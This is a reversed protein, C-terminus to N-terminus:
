AKRGGESQIEDELYGQVRWLRQYPGDELILSQHSGSEVVRGAELVLILDAHMVSSLRHAILITTGQGRRETLAALIASETVTDVASLSDDLILITPECLLARAIAVRQRQGGSLTVGREGVETEYGHQFEVISDHIAAAGAAAHLSESGARPAGIRLNDELSRSYLFPEQLVPGFQSRVFQRPLSSLEQGDLRISGDEYDYLRLLLQVLTSKGSGPRGILALTQGAALSLSVNRLVPKGGKYAFSLDRVEIAGTLPPLVTATNGELASEEEVALVERLRRMSVVAKGAESLVRGLQRVPWIILAEYELFATLTGVSLDGSKTFWAGVILVLGMQGMSLVDSTSWYLGLLKIFRQHHVRYNASRVEFKQREHEQRGFARVVRIATLNEQLVTTMAGEAEDMTKFLSKIRSFFVYAFAVIVPLLALAVMALQVDLAFLIPTVLVVLLLARAIELIQTSLFARVTEMDSTCRQVLDGTDADDLWSMPLRTIHGFLRERFRCVMGESASAALRTKFYLCIGSLAALLLFIVGALWLQGRVGAGLRVGLEQLWNDEAPLAGARGLAQTLPGDIAARTALPLGFALLIGAALAAIACLYRLRQGRSLSWLSDQARQSM